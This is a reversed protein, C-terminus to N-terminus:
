KKIEYLIFAALYKNVKYAVYKRNHSKIEGYENYKDVWRLLSQTFCKFIKCVEDPSKDETLYYEVASLKYDESKHKSTM